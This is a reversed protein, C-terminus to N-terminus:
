CSYINSSQIAFQLQGHSRPPLRTTESRPCRLPADNHKRSSLMFLDLATGTLTCISIHSIITGREYSKVALEKSSM